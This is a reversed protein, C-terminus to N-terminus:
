EPKTHHGSRAAAFVIDVVARSRTAFVRDSIVGSTWEQIAGVFGTAMVQGHLKLDVGPPIDGAAAADRLCETLLATPDHELILGGQGWASLLARFVMADARLRRVAAGVIRRAREQPDPAAIAGFDLDKLARDALARIMQDRSGVLNYVTMPAVDAREAIREVTLAQEPDERLLELAADLIREKRQQKGRERLGLPAPDSASRRSPPM